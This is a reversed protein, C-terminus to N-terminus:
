RPGVRNTGTLDELDIGFHNQGLWKLLILKGTREEGRSFPCEGIPGRPPIGTVTLKVTVPKASEFGLIAPADFVILGGVARGSAKLPAKGEQEVVLDFTASECATLLPHPTAGGDEGIDIEASRCASLAFAALALLGLRPLGALRM